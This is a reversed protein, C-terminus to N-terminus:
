HLFGEVSLDEDLDEWHIGIGGGILRWNNLEKESADRLKPFWELPVSIVRGDELQAILMNDSFRVKQAIAPKNKVLTNM